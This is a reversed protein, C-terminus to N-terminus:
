MMFFSITATPFLIPPVCRVNTIKVRPTQKELRYFVFRCVTYNLPLLLLIVATRRCLSVRKMAACVEDAVVLSSKFVANNWWSINFVKFGHVFNRQDEKELDRLIRCAM